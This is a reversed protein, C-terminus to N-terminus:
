HPRCTTLLVAIVFTPTLLKAAISGGKHAWKAEKLLHACDEPGHAAWLQVSQPHASQGYVIIANTDYSKLEAAVEDNTM